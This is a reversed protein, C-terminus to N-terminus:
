FVHLNRLSCTVSTLLSGLLDRQLLYKSFLLKGNDNDKFSIVGQRKELHSIWGIKNLMTPCLGTLMCPDTLDPGFAQVDAM